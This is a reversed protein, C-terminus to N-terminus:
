TGSDIFVHPDVDQEYTGDGKIHHKYCQSSAGDAQVADSLRAGAFKEGSVFHSKFPHQNNQNSWPPGPPLSQSSDCNVHEFPLMKLTGNDADSVWLVLWNQHIQIPYDTGSSMLQRLGSMTLICVSGVQQECSWCPTAPSSPTLMCNGQTFAGRKTKIQHVSPSPAAPPASSATSPGPSSSSCGVTLMLVLFSGLILVGQRITKM